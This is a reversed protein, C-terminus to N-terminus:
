AHGVLEARTNYSVGFWEVSGNGGYAAAAAQLLAMSQRAREGSLGRQDQQTQWVCQYVGRKDQGNVQLGVDLGDPTGEVRISVRRSRPRMEERRRHMESLEPGGFIELLTTAM